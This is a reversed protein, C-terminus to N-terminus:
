EVWNWSEVHLELDEGCGEIGGQCKCGGDRLRYRFIGKSELGASDCDLVLRGLVPLTGALVALRYGVFGLFDDGCDFFANFEGLIALLDMMPVVVWEGTLWVKV